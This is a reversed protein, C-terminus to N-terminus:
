RIILWMVHTTIPDAQWNARRFTLEYSPCFKIWLFVIHVIKKQFNKKKKSIKMQIRLDVRTSFKMRKIERERNRHSHTVRVIWTIRFVTVGLSVIDIYDIKKRSCRREEGDNQSEGQDAAIVTVALALYACIQIFSRSRRRAMISCRSFKPSKRGCHPSM